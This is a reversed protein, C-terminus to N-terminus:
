AEPATTEERGFSLPKLCEQGYYGPFETKLLEPFSGIAIEARARLTAGKGLFDMAETVIIGLSGITKAGDGFPVTFPKDLDEDAITGKPVFPVLWRNTLILGKEVITEWLQTPGPGCIEAAFNGTGTASSIFALRYDQESIRVAGIARPAENDDEKSVTELLEGSFKIIPGIGPIDAAAEQIRRVKKKLIRNVLFFGSAAVGAVICLGAIFDKVMDDYGYSDSKAAEEAAAESSEAQAYADAGPSFLQGAPLTNPDPAAAFSMGSGRGTDASSEDKPYMHFHQHHHEVVTNSTRQPREPAGFPVRVANGWNCIVNTCFWLFWPIILVALSSLILKKWTLKMGKWGLLFDSLKAKDYALLGRAARLKWNEEEGAAKEQKAKDIFTLAAQFLSQRKEGFIRVKLGRLRELITKTEPGSDNSTTM